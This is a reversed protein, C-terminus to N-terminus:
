RQVEGDRRHYGMEEILTKATRFHEQAENENNQTRCLRGAELHYDAIYLKMSGLEAIEFAENLDQWAKEFDQQVQYYSARIL